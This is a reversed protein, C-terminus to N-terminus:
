TREVPDQRINFSSAVVKFSERQIQPLEGRVYEGEVLMLDAGVLATQNRRLISLILQRIGERASLCADSGGLVDIHLIVDVVVTEHIFSTQPTLTEVAVPNQPNYTSVIVKRNVQEVQTMTEYKDHSWFVDNLQLGAAESDWNEQLLVNIKEPFTDTPNSM